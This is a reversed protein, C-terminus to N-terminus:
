AQEQPGERLWKAYDQLNLAGGTMICALAVADAKDPSRGLRDKIDDKPEVKIRGAPTLSWRAAALEAFLEPDPPLQVAQEGEDLPREPDLLERLRWYALARVNQFLYTDTRDREKSGEAFNIPCVSIGRAGAMDVVASGVGIVDINIAGGEGALHSFMEVVEKGTRTDRGPQTNMEEFHHQRRVCVVTQDDGGRAVDVGVATLPLPEKLAHWRDMAARIWRKPIVADAEEKQGIEWDGRLLQSRFPEPLSQLRAIYGAAVHPNDAVLAPIFTRSVPTRLEGEVEVPAPGPVEMDRDHPGMVFWRLEGPKAPRPYTKDLWPAWAEVVWSAGLGGPNTCGIMRTRQHPITTRVRSAIYRFQTRTFETLEDFAVLDYEDSRYQEYDTERQCHGFQVVRADPLNWRHSSGNYFRSDRYLNRSRPVLNRNLEAFHRRLILSSRHQRRAAALILESKGGGAAGGYLLEDAPSNLAEVQRSTPEWWPIPQDDGTLANKTLRWLREEVTPLPRAM